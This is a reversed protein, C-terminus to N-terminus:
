LILNVFTNCLKSCLYTQVYIIKHKSISHQIKIRTQPDFHTQNHKNQSMGALFWDVISYSIMLYWDFSYLFWTGTCVQPWDATFPCTKNHYLSSLAWNSRVPLINAYQNYISLSTLYFFSFSFILSVFCLFYPNLNPLFYFRRLDWPHRSDSTLTANNRRSLHTVNIKSQKVCSIWVPKQKFTSTHWRWKNGHDDNGHNHVYMHPLFIFIPASDQQAIPM